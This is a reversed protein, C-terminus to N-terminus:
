VRTVKNGVVFTETINLKKALYYAMFNFPIINSLVSFHEEAEPEEVIFVKAGARTIIDNLNMTRDYSPGKAVVQIVISGTATEKPGHDYQAMPMGSFCVKTSESLILSAEYATAINPGSGTIYLGHIKENELLDFVYDALSEGKKRYDDLRSTLLKVPKEINLGFGRFLALLTNVYSKSSSFDENGSHLLIVDKINSKMALESAPDNTIATYRDFLGTCWLAESSRGSQSFIVAESLKEKRYLFYESALEPYIDIGMYRFALPAFYSSGMGLYPVKQPLSITPTESVFTEAAEPISMVESLMEEM